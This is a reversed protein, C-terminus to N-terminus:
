DFAGTCGWLNPKLFNHSHIWHNAGYKLGQEVPLAAHMTRIDRKYPDSDLVSPWLVASGKRPPVKLGGKVDPFHTEGGEEVDSLYLFFTLIRSGCAQRIAEASMDHHTRYYQGIEYELLQLSEYNEQPIMTVFETRASVRQVLPDSECDHTCWANSSTRGESVVKVTEGRENAEGTDTSRQYGLKEGWGRLAEIEDDKVFDNFVVIWPGEPPRSLVQPRFEELQIAREFMANLDGPKWVHEESINLFARNCRKKPDLLECANCSRPCNVIMWGPNIECEGLSAFRPCKKKYRDTCVGAEGDSTEGERQANVPVTFTLADESVEFIEGVQERTGEVTFMFRHGLFSNLYVPERLSPNVKIWDDEGQEWFVSVAGGSWENALIISVGSDSESGDEESSHESNEALEESAPQHYQQNGIESGGRPDHTAQNQNEVRDKSNRSGHDQLPRWLASGIVAFRGEGWFLEVGMAVAIVATAALVWRLSTKKRPSSTPRQHAEEQKQTVPDPRHERTGNEDTQRAAAGM